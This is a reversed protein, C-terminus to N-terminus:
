MYTTNKKKYMRSVVLVGEVGMLVVRVAAIDRGLVV